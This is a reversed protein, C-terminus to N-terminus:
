ATAWASSAPRRCSSSVHEPALQRVLGYGARQVAAARHVSGARDVATAEVVEPGMHGVIRRVAYHNNGANM